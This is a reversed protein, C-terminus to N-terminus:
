IDGVVEVELLIRDSELSFKVVGVFTNKKNLSKSLFFQLM